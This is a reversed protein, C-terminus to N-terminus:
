AVRAGRVRDRGGRKAEYLAEDALRVMFDPEAHAPPVMAAHGISVTVWPAIDSARHEIALSRVAELLRHAVVDAVRTDCDTLLLALEEGGYRAALDDGSRVMAAIAGAVRVLAADGAVHGCSDNYAKFVDIDCLLVALSAGRARHDAWARALREDFAGRNAIRTLGDLSALRHLEANAARLAETRLAVERTLARENARVRWLRVQYAGFLAALLLLSALLRFWGTEHWHPLIAFAVVADGASWVGDNNRASARFAYDGPPLNTYYAIRRAGADVWDNDYGDLRYRYRVAEPAVYSMGAYHFELRDAGPGFRSGDSPDHVVGDVRVQEIAIPPAFLNRRLRQPEVEVVGETTGFWLRGDRGRWAPTQSAGNGQQSLMGDAKGFWTPEITRGADMAEIDARAIRAIGRNSSVWFDGATDDFVAFVADGVMGARAAYRDLRGDRWRMLGLSTGFWMTGDAMPHFAFVSANGFEPIGCDDLVGNAFCHLGSRQGIWLRGDPAEYLARMDANGAEPVNVFQDRGARALGLTTGLWVGGGRRPAIAFVIAAKLGDAIGFNRVNGHADIHAAGEISGVWLDGDADIGLSRVFPSRLQANNAFPQLAHDVVRTLGAGDTGVWVTGAADEIVARVSNSEFRGTVTVLKSDSIRHVGGNTTGVWLNGEHDEFTSRVIDKGLGPFAGECDVRMGSVRCLGRGQAVVWLNGDRDGNLAFVRQGAFTAVRPDAVFRQGDYRVVGETSGLWLEGNHDRHIVYVVRSPVGRDAGLIEFRGEHQRVVGVSELAVFVGGESDVAFGRFAGRPYGRDPGYVEIGNANRSVLGANTAFWLQGPRVEVIGFVSEIAPPLEVREFTRGRSRYLGGNLTGVWLVDDHDVALATIATSSFAPTNRQDFTEFEGGSYRSLGGYSAFWMSGDHKQAISLVTRQPLEDGYGVHVFQHVAREADLAQLRAAPVLAFAGAVLLRAIRGPWRSRELPM